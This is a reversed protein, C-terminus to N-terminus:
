WQIVMPDCSSKSAALRGNELVGVAYRGLRLLVVGVTVDRSLLDLMPGVDVGDCRLDEDIPFPPAIAIAARSGYFITAGTGLDPLAEMAKGAVGDMDAASTPSALYATRDYDSSASIEALDRRLRGRGVWSRGVVALEDHAQTGAM